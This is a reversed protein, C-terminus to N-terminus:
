VSVGGIKRLERFTRGGTTLSEQDLSQLLADISKYKEEVVEDELEVQKLSDSVLGDIHSQYELVQKRTLWDCEAFRILVEEISTARDRSFDSILEVIDPSDGERSEFYKRHQLQVHYAAAVVSGIYFADMISQINHGKLRKLQAEKLQTWKSRQSEQVNAPGAELPTTM